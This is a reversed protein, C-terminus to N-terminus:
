DEPIEAGFVAKLQTKLMEEDYEERLSSLKLQLEQTQRCKEKYQAELEELTSVIESLPVNLNGLHSKSDNFLEIIQREISPTM